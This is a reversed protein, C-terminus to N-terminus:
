FRLRATAKLGRRGPRVGFGLGRRDLDNAGPGFPLTWDPWTERDYQFLRPGLVPQRWGRVPEDPASSSMSQLTFRPTPPGAAAPEAAVAILLWPALRLTDAM